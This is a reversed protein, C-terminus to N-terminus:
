AEQHTTTVSTLTGPVYDHHSDHVLLTPAASRRGLGLVMFVLHIFFWTNSWLILVWAMVRGIVYGRANVVSGIFSQDWNNPSNISQGQALGGVLMCVTLAGLGYVSFWFHNRILRASLWECGALRPVIYYISGFMTMSVFGYIAVLHFGYEAHTFQMSSGTWFTGILAAIICTLVFCLTGVFIFRLAPSSSIMNHSGETTLHNNLSVVGAPILSLLAAVGGVAPMWAPFPGGMYKQMGMWGGLIMLGWFGMKDLQVSFVPPKGTIKPIFYHAAALGAPAFVLFILTYVYWSNIGAGMAGLPAYNSYHNLFLNATLYIWPFFLLAVLYRPALGTPDDGSALTFLTFLRWAIILFSILLLPWVFSPFELWQYPTGEGAFIGILGLTIGINWTTTAVIISGGSGRLPVEARRAVLWITTGLCAQMAWGYVLANLHAPQLRGYNLFWLCDYDLFSPSVLKISALLGMVTSALLWLAANAFLFLVPRKVSRDIDARRLSEANTALPDATEM